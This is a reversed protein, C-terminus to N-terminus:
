LNYRSVHFGLKWGRLSHMLNSRGVDECLIMQLSLNQTVSLSFIQCYIAINKCWLYLQGQEVLNVFRNRM